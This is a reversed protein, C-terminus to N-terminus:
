VVIRPLKFFAGADYSLTQTEGMSIATASRNNEINEIRIRCPGGHAVNDGILFDVTEFRSPLFVMDSTRPNVFTFSVNLDATGVYVWRPGPHYTSAANCCYKKQLNNSIEFRWSTVEVGYPLSPTTEVLTAWYPIPRTYVNEAIPGLPSYVSTLYGPEPGLETGLENAIGFKQRIYDDGTEVDNTETSADVVVDLGLDCTVLQGADASL